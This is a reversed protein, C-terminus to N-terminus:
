GTAQAKAKEYTKAGIYYFDVDLGQSWYNPYRGDALWEADILTAKLDFRELRVGDWTGDSDRYIITYANLPQDIEAQIRALANEMDNTLSRGPGGNDKLWIINGDIGWSYDAQNGFLNGTHTRNEELRKRWCDPGIGREISVPDTLPKGCHNCTM